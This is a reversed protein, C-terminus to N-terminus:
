EVENWQHKGGLTIGLFFLNFLNEMGEDVKDNIIIKKNDIKPHNVREEFNDKSFMFNIAITFHIKWADSKKFYNIINKWYPKVKNHYGEISQTKEDPLYQDGPRGSSM